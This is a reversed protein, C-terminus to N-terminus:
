NRIFREVKQAYESIPGSPSSVNSLVTQADIPRNLLKLAVAYNLGVSPTSLTAKDFKGYIDVASQYDGKILYASALASGVEVDKPSRKQLGQFIPLAKGVTGFRLYLQALNYTPTVAFTNLDSALKFAALAKQYKGQKQYVVGLNNVPPIYKSDLDRSKNYFLIAKAYDSKLFYCTGLQNWYSTNNKFKTYQDDAIKLAEDYKGQYCKINMVTLPDDNGKLAEELKAPALSGLSEKVLAYSSEDSSSFDFEDKDANYKEEKKKDFDLQEVWSFDEEASSVGRKTSAIERSVNSTTSCASLILLLPLLKKM